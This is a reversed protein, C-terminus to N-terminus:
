VNCVGRRRRTTGIKRSCVLNLGAVISHGISMRLENRHVEDRTSGVRTATYSRSLLFDCALETPFAMALAAKESLRDEWYRGYTCDNADILHALWDM